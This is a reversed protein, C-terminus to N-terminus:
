NKSGNQKLPIPRGVTGDANLTVMQGANMLFVNGTKNETIELQGEFLKIYGPGDPVVSIEVDTGRFGVAADPVHIDDQRKWSPPLKGTVWRFVGKALSATVKAVSSSPDYVFEDIVM